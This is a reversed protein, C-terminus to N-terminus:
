SKTDNADHHDYIDNNSNISNFEYWISKFWNRLIRQQTSVITIRQKETTPQVKKKSFTIRSVNAEHFMTLHYNLGIKLCNIPDKVMLVSYWGNKIWFVFNGTWAGFMWNCKNHLNNENLDFNFRCFPVFTIKAENKNLREFIIIDGNLRCARQCNALLSIYCNFNEREQQLTFFANEIDMIHFLIFAAALRHWWVNWWWVLASKARWMGYTPGIMVCIRSLVTEFRKRTKVFFESSHLFM